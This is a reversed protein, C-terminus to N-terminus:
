IYQGICLITNLTNLRLYYIFPTNIKKSIINTVKEYNNNKTNMSKNNKDISIYVNQIIDNLKLDTNNFLEPIELNEFIKKMGMEKMINTYRLKLNEKIQPILLYKFKTLELNEIMFNLLESTIEPYYDENTTIIGFSIRKDFTRIEMLELSDHKTYYYNKNQSLLFNQKRKRFSLFADQVIDDFNHEWVPEFKGSILALVSKEQLYNPKITNSFDLNHSNSIYKNIKMCENDLNSFKDEYNIIKLSNLYNLFTKNIKIDYPVLLFNNIDIYKIKELENYFLNLDSLSKQKDSLSLYNKLEINTRGKSAIYFSILINTLYFTSILYNNKLLFRQVQNFLNYGYEDINNSLKSIDNSLIVNNERFNDIHALNNPMNSNTSFPDYYNIKLDSKKDFLDFDLNMNDQIYKKDNRNPTFNGILPMGKNIDNHTFQDGTIEGMEPYNQNNDYNTPYNLEFNRKDLRNSYVSSM